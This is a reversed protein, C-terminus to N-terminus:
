KALRGANEFGGSEQIDEKYGVRHEERIEKARGREPRRAAHGHTEYLIADSRRDSRKLLASEQWEVRVM